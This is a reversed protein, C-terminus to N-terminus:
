NTFRSSEIQDSRDYGGPLGKVDRWVSVGEVLTSTATVSLNPKEPRRMMSKIGVWLTLIGIITTVIFEVHDIYNLANAM